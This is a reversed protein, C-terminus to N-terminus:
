PADGPEESIAKYLDGAAIFLMLVLPGLIIGNFGFLVLGGAISFFLFLPHVKLQGGLVVPKIFNDLTSVLVGACALFLLARGIEGSFAMFLGLPLWVLATGVMPVFSAIATLVSLVLGNRLGFIATLIGMMCAQFVAVLFYGKVLQKGTEKLKNMFLRTHSPDIPMMSVVTEGLSAGDLLLYFLTFMMFLLAVMFAVLNKIISGSLSLLRNTGMLLLSQIERYLNLSRFDFSEGLLGKLLVGLQSTESISFRDRNAEFFHLANRLLDTLQRMVAFGLFGLQVVVILVGLVSLLLASVRERVTHGPRKSGQQRDPKRCGCFRRHLPELFVFLISSWLIVTLFPYFIRAVIIFLLLFFILFAIKRPALTKM